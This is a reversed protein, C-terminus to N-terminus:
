FFFGEWFEEKGAVNEISLFESWFCGSGITFKFESYFYYFLSGTLLCSYSRM